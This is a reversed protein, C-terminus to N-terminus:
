LTPLRRFGLDETPETLDEHILTVAAGPPGRRCHRLLEEVVVVDGQVFAEVTGDSRNRVWGFLGLRNARRVMWDRYGVGQVRGAIRVQKAIM